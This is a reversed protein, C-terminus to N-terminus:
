NAAAAAKSARDTTNYTGILGKKLPACPQASPHTLSRSAAHSHTLSRSTAHPQAYTNQNTSCRSSCLTVFVAHRVSYGRESQDFLTIFVAHRVSYGRESQNFLTVFVAHRVSYGRESQDILTVYASSSVLCVTQDSTLLTKFIKSKGNSFRRMSWRDLKCFLVSRM